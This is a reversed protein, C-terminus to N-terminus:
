GGLRMGCSACYCDRDRILFGIWFLPWCLFLILVVALVCGVPSTHSSVFPPAASGCYPCRFGLGRRYDYDLRGDPARTEAVAQVLPPSPPGPPLPAPRTAELRRARALQGRRLTVAAEVDEDSPGLILVASSVFAVTMAAGSLVLGVAVGVGAVVSAAFASGFVAGSLILAACLREATGSGLHM